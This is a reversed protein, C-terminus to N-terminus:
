PPNPSLNGPLFQIFVMYKQAGLRASELFCLLLIGPTCVHLSFNNVYVRGVVNVVVLFRIAGLQSRDRSGQIRPGARQSPAILVVTLPLSILAIYLKKGTKKELRVTWKVKIWLNDLQYQEQIWSTDRCSRRDTQRYTPGDTPKYRSKSFRSRLRYGATADYPKTDSSTRKLLLLPFDVKVM